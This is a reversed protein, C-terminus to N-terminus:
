KMTGKAKQAEYQKITLTKQVCPIIYFSPIIPTNVILVVQSFAHMEAIQDKLVDNVSPILDIVVARPPQECQYISVWSTVHWRRNAKLIM